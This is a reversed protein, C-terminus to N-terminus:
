NISEGCLTVSIYSDASVNAKVVKVKLECSYSQRRTPIFRVPMRVFSRPKLTFTNHLIVFPLQPDAVKM